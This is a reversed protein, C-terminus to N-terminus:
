FWYLKPPQKLSVGAVAFLDCYRGHSSNGTLDGCKKYITSAISIVHTAVVVVRQAVDSPLFLTRQGSVFFWLVM